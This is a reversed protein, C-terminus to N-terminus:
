EQSKPDYAVLAMSYPWKRAVKAVIKDPDGEEVAGVFYIKGDKQGTCAGGLGYVLRGDTTRMQGHDRREDKDLDYSVLVSLPPYHGGALKASFKEEDRVDWSHGTYDFSGSMVPAYWLIHENSITLALTSFPTQRVIDIDDSRYQPACMKLLPTIKGERGDHPDYKFLTSTGGMIGYAVQDIPDWEIVRWIVKRDIMPKSMTRPLVRMDYELRIYPFDIVQDTVPNYKWIQAVPFSGYINGEDDAFITRCIDWDDVRGLDFTMGKKIDYKYLHGDEALGFLAMYKTDMIMGLLGWHRSILGLDELRDKTPNYRYWHPGEYSSPDIPEPGTDECLGGFYVNGEEDEGMRTHIKGTTRIGKGRERQFVTLDAIHRMIETEPDFEYFHAAEAHTCLGIYIKGSKAGYVASWMSGEMHEGPFTFRDVLAIDTKEPEAAHINVCLLCIIMIVSLHKLIDLGKIM